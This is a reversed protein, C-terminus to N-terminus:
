EDALLGSAACEDAMFEAFPDADADDTYPEAAADEKADYALAGLQISTHAFYAHTYATHWKKALGKLKNLLEDNMRLTNNTQIELGDVRFIFRLSFDIDSIAADTGEIMSMQAYPAQNRSIILTLPYTEVVTLVMEEETLVTELKDKLRNAEDYFSM